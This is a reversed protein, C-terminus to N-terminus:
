SSCAESCYLHPFLPFPPPSTLFIFFSHTNFAMRRIETHVEYRIWTITHDIYIKHMRAHVHLGALWRVYWRWILLELAVYFCINESKLNNAQISERSHQIFINAYTHRTYTILSHTIRENAFSECMCRSTQMHTFTTSHRHTHTLTQMKWCMQKEEYVNENCIRDVDLKNSLMNSSHIHPVSFLNNM